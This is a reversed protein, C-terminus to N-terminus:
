PNSVKFFQAPGKIPVTAPNATGVQTWNESPGSLAPSSWLTGAAPTWSVILNSGSVAASLTIGPAYVYSSNYNDYVASDVYLLPAAGAADNDHASTSIGVYVVSPLALLDGVQTPDNTAQLLWSTGNTSSFAFLQTGTRKLRLWANPYQPAASAFNWAASAGNTSNRANCEVANAGTGSNDIAEVGDVSSPDNVINWNRSGADLSERVMLGAKSWNSVKTVSTVRVVVDFDNTKLEYAFNFGDANNWQDSGECAITYANPGQPYMMGPVGPDVGPNGIDSDMLEPKSLAISTNAVPLGGGAGNLSNIKVTLPLTINGSVALAASKYDNTNVVVDLITLGAPLIYTSAQGLLVPDMPTSFAVVIYNTLNYGFGVFNTNAYYSAYVLQPTNTIVTILAATTSAWIPNGSVDAYGLARAKCVVSSGNFSPLLEPITYTASTAGPVAVGNVYWQYTLFNNFSNRWDGDPGIPIKSDTGATVSFSASTYSNLTESTPSNTFNVYTCRPFYAAIASGTITSKTGDAPANPYNPDTSVEATAGFWTGGGGQHHTVEIAYKQGAVLAVGNPYVGYTDSSVAATGGGGTAWALGGSYATAADILQLDTYSSDTSLLLDATDDCAVFFVYTGTTPPIFFGVESDSFNDAVETAATDTELAPASMSWDPAGATGGELQGLTPNAGWYQHLGYGTELVENGTVTLTATVSNSWLDVGNNDVYGLSRIKCMFQDNNDASTVPGLSITSTVKGPMAVWGSGKNEYWQYALFNNFLGAPSQLNGVAVKSDTAGAVSFTAYGFFAAAVNTPQQTYGVYFSRPVSMGIQSGLLVSATGDAPAPPQTGGSRITYTAELNIGGGGQVHDAEIYYPKGATLPIGYQWPTIGNTVWTASCKQANAVDPSTGEDTNWALPNGWNVEQAVLQVNAPTSDSSVFLDSQDDSNIYFDYLGSQPPYFITFMKEGCNNAYDNNGVNSEFGPVAIVNTSIGLSGSEIQGLSPEGSGNYWEQCLSWGMEVVPSAINVQAVASTSSLGSMVATAVVAYSAGNASAPWLSVYYSPQTAGAIPVSNSYWQYLPSFEGGSVAQAALGGGTSATFTSNSPQLTWTPTTDPISVYEINGNTAYLLSPTGNTFNASWVASPAAINGGMMSATQYTVTFGDGGGGQYHVGEIYYMKGATLPIGAAFPTLGTVPDQFTDSQNQTFNFNASDAGVVGNADVGLWNDPNTWSTAQAVMAKHEATNDTSLFLDSDDDSAVYFVYKDTTPAVFFGSVRDVYNGGYGGPNDWNNWVFISSAPSVNGGEVAPRSAAGSFFEVKLGPRAALPSNTVTLTAITSKLTSVTTNYPAPITAQCYVQAGNDSADALWTYTQGTANTQAVGNKYWMYTPLVVNPSSNNTTTFSLSVEGGVFTSATAPVQVTAGVVTPATIGAFTTSINGVTADGLAGAVNNHATVAIGVCVLNPWAAAPWATNGSGVLTGASTDIDIYHNWATGNTSYYISFVSFSRHVKMWVNPFVPHPSTGEQNWDASGGSTARWQDVGFENDGTPLTNMAAIFPDSGLPGTLPNADDVMLECKTWTADAGNLNQLNDVQVIADWNTGSAWAYRYHFQSTGNWIDSGGGFVDLTGDANTQTYGAQVPGDIDADIWNQASASIGALTLAALSLSACASRWWPPPSTLKEPASSKQPHWM